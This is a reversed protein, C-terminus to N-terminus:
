STVSTGSPSLGGEARNIQDQRSAESSLIVQLSLCLSLKPAGSAWARQLMPTQPTCAAYAWTQLWSQGLRHSYRARPHRQWM